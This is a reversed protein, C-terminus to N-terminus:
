LKNHATLEVTGGTVQKLQEQLDEASVFEDVLVAVMHLKSLGFGIPIVESEGGWTLGKKVIARVKKEIDALPTEIDEPTIEFDARSQAGKEATFVPDAEPAEEKVEKEAPKPEEKDKGKNKKGKKGGDKEGGEAAAPKAEQRKERKEESGKLRLLARV